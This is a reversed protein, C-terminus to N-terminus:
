QASREKALGYVPHPATKGQPRKGPSLAYRALNWGTVLLGALLWLGLDLRLCRWPRQIDVADRDHAMWRFLLYRMAFAVLIAAWIVSGLEVPPLTELFPCVELGYIILLLVGVLYLAAVKM